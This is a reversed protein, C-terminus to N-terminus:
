FPLEQECRRVSRRILLPTLVREPSAPFWRRAALESAM